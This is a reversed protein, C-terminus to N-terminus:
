VILDLIAQAAKKGAKQRLIAHWEQFNAVLDDHNTQLQKLVEATLAEPTADDQIFEPVIQQKNLINPLAIFDTKVLKKALWHTLMSMKYAVVMPRKLLMAELSATGSAMLVADSAIMADRSEGDLLYLNKLKVGSKRLVQIFQKRRSHNVMPVLFILDPMSQQCRKAVELFTPAIYKIETERSGPLVALVKADIPLGFHQRAKEQYCWVSIEDALSHGVYVAPIKEKEYLVPEFPLICLVLDAAKKIKHIRKPRWAWISPSVYHVTKIGAKKLAIEVGLNFDPSDIGIFVDPKFAKIKKIFRRRILFLSPLRKLPEILGMVSLKEMPFLSECGAKQMNPGAIGKAILDPYRERLAKLVSAGLVDGSPEGALLAVKLSM